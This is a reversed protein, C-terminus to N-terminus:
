LVMDDFHGAALESKIQETPVFLNHRAIEGATQTEQRRAVVGVPSGLANFVPGGSNGPAVEASTVGFRSGDEVSGLWGNIEGRHFLLPNRDDFLVRPFGATVVSDLIAGDRMSLGIIADPLEADILCIDINQLRWLSKLELDTDESRVFEITRLDGDSNFLNHRCTLLRRSGDDLRVVFGTGTSLDGQDLRVCIEIIGSRRRPLYFRHGLLAGDLEHSEFVPRVQNDFLTYAGHLGRNVHLSVANKRLNELAWVALLIPYDDMGCFARAMKAFDTPEISVFNISSDENRYVKTDPRSQDPFFSVFAEVDEVFLKTLEFTADGYREIWDSLM